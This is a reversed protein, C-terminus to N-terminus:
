FGFGCRVRPRGLPRRRATSRLDTISPHSLTARINVSIFFETERYLAFFRPVIPTKHNRNQFQSPASSGNEIRSLSSYCLSCCLSRVCLLVSSSFATLVCNSRALCFRHASPHCRHGPPLQISIKPHSLSKNPNQGATTDLWSVLRAGLSWSHNNTIM